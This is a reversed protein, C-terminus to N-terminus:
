GQIWEMFLIETTYAFPVNYPSINSYTSPYLTFVYFRYDKQERKEKIFLNNISDATAKKIQPM